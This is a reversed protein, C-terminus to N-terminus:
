DLSSSNGMKKMMEEYKGKLNLLEDQINKREEQENDDGEVHRSRHHESTIPEEDHLAGQINDKLTKNAEYPVDMKNTLEEIIQEMAAIRAEM